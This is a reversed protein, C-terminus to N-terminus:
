VGFNSESSYWRYIPFVSYCRVHLETQQIGTCYKWQQANYFLMSTNSYAQRCLRFMGLARDRTVKLFRDRRLCNFANKIENWLLTRRHTSDKLHRRAVLASAGCSSRTAYGPHITQLKTGLINAPPKSGAKAASRRLANGVTLLQTEGRKKTLACKNGWLLHLHCFDPNSGAIILNRIWDTNHHVAKRGRRSYTGRLRKSTNSPVTWSM